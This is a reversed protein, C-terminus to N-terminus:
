SFYDTKTASWLHSSIYSISQDRGSAIWDVLYQAVDPYTVKCSAPSALWKTTKDVDLSSMSSGLKLQELAMANSEQEMQQAVPKVLLKKGLQLTESPLEFGANCIVAEARHLDQQFGVRSPLHFSINGKDITKEKYRRCADPHYVIFNHDVFNGLFQSISELSEFPLYVLNLNKEINCEFAEVPAIPPLVPCGFHDWHLGLDTDAPALNNMVYRHVPTTRCMPVSKHTFAYQHGLGIVEVGTRRGARATIPEYDSIVLDYGSVDLQNTDKLLQLLNNKLLTKSWIVRGSNTAFTIGRRVQFDGFAQMDFLEERPRGSFLFDVQIPTKAFAAAM